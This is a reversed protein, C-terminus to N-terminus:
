LEELLIECLNYFSLETENERLYSFCKYDSKKATEILISEPDQKLITRLNKRFTLDNIRIPAHSLDKEGMIVDQTTGTVHYRKAKAKAVIEEFKLKPEAYPIFGKKIKYGSIDSIKKEEFTLDIKDQKLDAYNKERNLFNLSVISHEIDLLLEVGIQDKIYMQDLVAGISTQLATMPIVEGDPRYYDTLTTNEFTLQPFIEKVKKVLEITEKLVEFYELASNRSEYRKVYKGRAPKWWLKIGHMNVYLPKLKVIHKLSDLLEQRKEPHYHYDETFSIPIHYGWYLDPAKIVTDPKGKLEFGFKVGKDELLKRAIPNKFWLATGMLDKSNSPVLLYM